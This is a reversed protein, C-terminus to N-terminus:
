FSLLILIHYLNHCLPKTHSFINLLISITSINTKKGIGNDTQVINMDYRLVIGVCALFFEFLLTTAWLQYFLTFYSPYNHTVKGMVVFFGKMAVIALAVVFRTNGTARTYSNVM